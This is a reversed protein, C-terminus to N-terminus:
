RPLYQDIVPQVADAWTAYGRATLHLFDPEFDGTIQTGDPPNLFKASLDLFTVRKGDDLAALNQNLKATWDRFPDDAKAGRPLKGLLVIHAGPCRTEYEQLLLKVGQALQGPDQNTWHFNFMLIVLKPNQGALQGHQVRWLANQIQDDIAFDAANLSSYRAKWTDQGAYQLREMLDDGDFLLDYPNAKARDVNKQYRAFWHIYWDLNPVPFVLPNTGPPPEPLPWSVTFQPPAAPSSPAPAPMTSIASKPCYRDVIPQIADAWIAYGKPTPHLFDPMMDPSISGDPQLFKAGLDLYTVSKGDDLAAIAQNAQTIKARLPDTPLHGRPFIGLLLIHAQPLRKRYDAVLAAIGGAVEEPTHAQINNTGILLVVLKPSIGDIEGHDLRWLAHEVGDAGIGADFVHRDGYHAQWIEPAQGPWHDTISDGDFLLDVQGAKAKKELRDVFDDLWAVPAVPFTSVLQGPPLPPQPWVVNPDTHATLILAFFALLPLFPM